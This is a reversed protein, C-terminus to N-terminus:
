TGYHGYHVLQTITELLSVFKIESLFGTMQVKHQYKRPLLVQFTKPPLPPLTIIFLQYLLHQVGAQTKKGM